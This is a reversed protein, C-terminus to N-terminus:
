TRGAEALLKDLADAAADVPINGMASGPAFDQAQLWVGATVKPHVKAGSTPGFLSVLPADAVGLIHTLGCDAGIAAACRRAVAITRAISYRPEDLGEAQLPFQAAPVAARLPAIWDTEDPGLLFVPTRGAKTQREALAIYRDLPWCKARKGAGPALAVYVPGDPLLAAAEELLAAAPTACDRLRPPPPPAGAAAEVLSLLRELVHRPKRREPAPKRDSFRFGALGSIFAGRSLRRAALSRWWLHQTDLTIDFREATPPPRLLDVPRDGWGSGCIFQDVTGPPVLAAAAKELQSSEAAIWVIRWDPFAGRLARLFPLKIMADGILEGHTFVALNPRERATM